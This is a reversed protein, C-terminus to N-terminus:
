PAVDDHGMRGFVFDFAEAQAGGGGGLHGELPRRRRGVFRHTFEHEFAADRRQSAGFKVLSRGLLLDLPDHDADGGGGLVRELADGLGGVFRHAFAQEVGAQDRGAAHDGHKRRKITGSSWYIVGLSKIPAKSVVVAAPAKSEASAAGARAWLTVGSGGTATSVVGPRVEGSLLEDRPPSPSAM